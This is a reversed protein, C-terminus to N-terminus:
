AYRRDDWSAARRGASEMMWSLMMITPIMNMVFHWGVRYGVAAEHSMLQPAYGFLTSMGIPPYGALVSGTLLLHEILHAGEILLALRIARAETLVWLAALTWLFILNGGTHLVEMGRAMLVKDSCLDPSVMQGATDALFHAFNSKWPASRDLVLWHTFQYAHEAFHGIQFLIGLTAGIVLASKLYRNM